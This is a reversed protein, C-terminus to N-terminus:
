KNVIYSFDKNYYDKWFSNRNDPRSFPAQLSPQMADEICTKKWVVSHKIKEFYDSGKQSNILVLSVGKNDDLEPAVNEIGWYDALTIDSQHETSKYKCEYCCPRIILRKMFLNRFVQSNIKEHEVTITEVHDRWGFDKKNRFEVSDVSKGKSLWDLYRHWVKPSPVGLCLIDVCLLNRYEKGLYKNLGAIQCSTGSFLVNKGYELDEKVRKYSNGINSQIYKSGRMKDRDEAKNTRIHIANNDADLICGYIIGGDLFLDSIATFVGGSRSNSRILEDKHKAAYVLM